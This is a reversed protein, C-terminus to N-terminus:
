SIQSCDDSIVEMNQIIEDLTDLHRMTVDFLEASLKDIETITRNDSCRNEELMSKFYETAKMIDDHIQVVLNDFLKDAVSQIIWSIFDYKENEAYKRVIDDFSATWTRLHCDKQHQKIVTDVEDKIRITKPTTM